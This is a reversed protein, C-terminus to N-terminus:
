LETHIDEGKYHSKEFGSSVRDIALSTILYSFVVFICVYMLVTPRGAWRTYNKLTIALLGPLERGCFSVNQSSIGGQLGNCCSALSTYKVM